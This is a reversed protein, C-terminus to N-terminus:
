QKAILDIVIGIVVQVVVLIGVGIYVMKSISDIKQVINEHKVDYESRSIFTTAQRDLQERFENMGELRREMEGKASKLAEDNKANTIIMKEELHNVESHVFDRINVNIYKEPESM